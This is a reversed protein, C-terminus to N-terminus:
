KLNKTDPLLSLFGGRMFHIMIKLQETAQPKDLNHSLIHLVADIQLHSFWHITCDNFYSNEPLPPKAQSLLQVTQCDLMQILTDFFSCVLPHERNNLIISCIAPNDFFLDFVEEAARFDESEDKAISFSSSSLEREYHEKMLSLLRDTVPSIVHGFLDEKDQFFFYLAGTTVDARSCIRRLSAKEFGFESFELVASQLLRTKTEEPVSGAHRSM